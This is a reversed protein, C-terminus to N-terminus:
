KRGVRRSNKAACLEQIRRQLRLLRQELEADERSDIVKDKLSEELKVLLAAMEGNAEVAVSMASKAAPAEDGCFSVRLDPCKRLLTELMARRFEAPLIRSSLMERLHAADPVAQGERWRHVTSESTDAERALQEVSIPRGRGVYEEMVEILSLSM